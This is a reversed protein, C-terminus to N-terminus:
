PDGLAVLLLAAAAYIAALTPDGLLTWGIAAFLLVGLTTWFRARRRREIQATLRDLEDLSDELSDRPPDGAIQRPVRAAASVGRLLSEALNPAPKM